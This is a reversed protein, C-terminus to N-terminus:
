VSWLIRYMVNPLKWGDTHIEAWPLLMVTFQRSAVGSFLQLKDSEIKTFIQFSIERVAFLLIIPCFYTLDNGEKLGLLLYGHQQFGFAAQFKLSHFYPTGWFKDGICRCLEVSKLRCRWCCKVWFFVIQCQLSLDIFDEYQSFWFAGVHVRQAEIIWYRPLKFM